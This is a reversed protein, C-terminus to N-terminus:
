VASRGTRCQRGGRSREARACCRWERRGPARSWCGRGIRTRWSRDQYSFWEFRCRGSPCTSGPYLRSREEPSQLRLYPSRRCARCRSRRSPPLRCARLGAPDCKQLLCGADPHRNEWARDGRERSSLGKVRSKTETVSPLTVPPLPFHRTFSKATEFLSDEFEEPVIRPASRFGDAERDPLIRGQGIGGDARHEAPQFLFAVNTM